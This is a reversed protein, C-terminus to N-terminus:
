IDWCLNDLRIILKLRNELRTRTCFNDIQKLGKSFNSARKYDWPYLSINEIKYRDMVSVIIEKQIQKRNNLTGTILNSQTQLENKVHYRVCSPAAGLLINVWYSSVVLNDLNDSGGHAQPVIHDRSLGMSTQLNFPDTIENTYWCRITGKSLAFKLTKRKQTYLNIQNDIYKIDLHVEKKYSKSTSNINLQLLHDRIEKLNMIENFKNEIDEYM